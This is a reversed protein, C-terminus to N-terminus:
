LTVCAMSLCVWCYVVVCRTGCEVLIEDDLRWFQLTVIVQL